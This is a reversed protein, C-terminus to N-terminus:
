PTGHANACSPVVSQQMSLAASLRLAELGEEGSVPFHEARRRGRGSAQLEVRLRDCHDIPNRIMQVQGCGRLFQIQEWYGHKAGCGLWHRDQVRSLTEEDSQWCSLTM